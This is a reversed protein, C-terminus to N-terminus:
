RFETTKSAQQLIFQKVEEIHRYCTKFLMPSIGELTEKSVVRQRRRRDVEWAM